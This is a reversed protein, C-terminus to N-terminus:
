CLDSFIGVLLFFVAFGTLAGDLDIYGKQRKM